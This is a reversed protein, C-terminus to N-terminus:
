KVKWYEYAKIAENLNNLYLSPLISKDIKNLVQQAKLSNEVWMKLGRKTGNTKLNGLSSVISIFIKVNQINKKGKTTKTDAGSIVAFDRFTGPKGSTKRRVVRVAKGRKPTKEGVEVFTTKGKKYKGVEAKKNAVKKAAAKARVMKVFKARAALQAASPKKKTPM